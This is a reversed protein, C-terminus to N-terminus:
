YACPKMLINERFAITSDAVGLNKLIQMNPCIANIGIKILAFHHITHESLYILERAINTHLCVESNQIFHKFILDQGLDCQNLALKLKHLISLANQPSNEIELNREREDYNVYGNGSFLCNYFEIIHRIHQGISSYDLINIPLVYNELDIKSILEEIEDLKRLHYKKFDEM